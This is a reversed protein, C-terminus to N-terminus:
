GIPQAKWEVYSGRKATVTQGAGETWMVGQIDGAATPIVVGEVVAINSATNASSPSSTETQPHLYSSGGENLLRTGVDRSWESRLALFSQAPGNFSWGSGTTAADVTFVIFFRFAYFVGAEVPFKLGTINTPPDNATCPVDAPLLVIGSKYGLPLAFRDAILRQVEAEKGWGM